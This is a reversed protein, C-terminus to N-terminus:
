DTSPPNTLSITGTEGANECGAGLTFTGALSLSSQKTVSGTGSVTCSGATLDRDPDPFRFNVSTENNGNPFGHEVVRFTGDCADHDCTSAGSYHLLTPDDGSALKSIMMAHPANSGIVLTGGWNGSLIVQAHAPAGAFALATIAFAAALTLKSRQM